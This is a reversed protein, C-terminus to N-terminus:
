LSAPDYRNLILVWEHRTLDNVRSWGALIREAKARDVRIFGAQLDIWDCALAIM